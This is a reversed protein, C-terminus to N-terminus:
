NKRLRLYLSYHIGDAHYEKRTEFIDSRKELFESLNRAGYTAYSFDACHKKLNLGFLNAKCWGDSQVAQKFSWAIAKEIDKPDFIMLDDVMKM